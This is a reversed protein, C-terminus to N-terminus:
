TTDARTGRGMSRDTQCSLSVSPGPQKDTDVMMGRNLIAQGQEMWRRLDQPTGEWERLRSQLEGTLRELERVRAEESRLREQCKELQDETTTLRRETTRLATNQKRLEDIESKLERNEQIAGRSIFTAMTLENSLERIQKDLDKRSMVPLSQM